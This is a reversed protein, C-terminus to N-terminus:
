LGELVNITKEKEIVIVTNCRHWQPLTMPDPLDKWDINFWLWKNHIEQEIIKGFCLINTNIVKVVPEDIFDKIM